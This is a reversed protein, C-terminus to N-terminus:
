PAVVPGVAVDGGGLTAETVNEELLIALHHLGVAGRPRGAADQDVAVPHDAALEGEVRVGNAAEQRRGGL